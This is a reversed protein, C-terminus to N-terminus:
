RVGRATTTQQSLFQMLRKLNYILSPDGSKIIDQLSGDFSPQMQQGVPPGMAPQSPASTVPMSPNVSSMLARSPGMDVASTAPPQMSRLVEASTEPSPQLADFEAADAQIDEPALMTRNISTGPVARKIEKSEYMMPAGTKPNFVTPVKSFTNELQPPISELGPQGPAMGRVFGGQGGISTYTKANEQALKQRALFKVYPLLSEDVGTETNAKAVKANNAANFTRALTNDVESNPSLPNGQEDFKPVLNNAEYTKLVAGRQDKLVDSQLAAQDKMKQLASAYRAQKSLTDFHIATKDLESAQGMLYRQNEENGRGGGFVREGWGSDKYPMVSKNVVYTQGDPGRVVNPNATAPGNFGASEFNNADAADITAQKFDPNAEGQGFIGALLSSWKSGGGGGSLRKQAM